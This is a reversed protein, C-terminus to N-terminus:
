YQLKNQEEKSVTNQNAEKFEKTDSENVLIQFANKDMTEMTEMDCLPTSSTMHQQHNSHHIHKTPHKKYHCYCVTLFIFFVLAVLM